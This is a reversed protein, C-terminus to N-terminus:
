TAVIATASQVPKMLLLQAINHQVNVAPLESSAFQAFTEPNPHRAAEAAVHFATLGQSAIVRLASSKSTGNALAVAAALDAGASFLKWLADGASLSLCVHHLSALLGDLSRHCIRAIADTSLLACVEDDDDTETGTIVPRRLLFAAAFSNPVINHLPRLPGFCHGGVLLGRALGATTRLEDPPLRSIADLYFRHITDLLRRRMARMDSQAWAEDDAEPHPQPGAPKAAAQVRPGRPRRNSRGAM